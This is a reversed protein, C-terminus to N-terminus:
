IFRLKFYMFDNDDLFRFIIGDESIEEVYLRVPNEELWEKAEQATRDPSRYYVAIFGRWDIYIAKDFGLLSNVELRSLVRSSNPDHTQREVIIM